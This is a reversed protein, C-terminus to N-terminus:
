IQTFFKLNCGFNISYTSGSNTTTKYAQVRFTLNDGDYTAFIRHGCGRGSYFGDLLKFETNIPMIVTTGNPTSFTDYAWNKSSSYYCLGSYSTITITVANYGSRNYSESGQEWTGSVAGSGNGEHRSYNSKLSYTTEFSILKALTWKGNEIILSKGDDASTITPLTADTWYFKFLGM